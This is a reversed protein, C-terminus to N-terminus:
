KINRAPRYDGIAKRSEKDEKKEKKEKKDGKGDNGDGKKGGKDKRDGGKRKSRCEECLGRRVGKSVQETHGTDNPDRM